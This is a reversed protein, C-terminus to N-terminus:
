PRSEAPPARGAISGGLALQPRRDADQSRRPEARQLRWRGRGAAIRAILIDRRWRFLAGVLAVGLAVAAIVTMAVPSGNRALVGMGPLPDGLAIRELNEQAVFLVVTSATL